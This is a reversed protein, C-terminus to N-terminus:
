PMVMSIVGMRSSSRISRLIRVSSIRSAVWGMACSASLTPRLWVGQQFRTCFSSAAPMMVLRTASTSGRRTPSFRVTRVSISAMSWVGAQRSRKKLVTRLKGSTM